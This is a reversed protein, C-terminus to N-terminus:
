GDTTEEEILGEDLAVYLKRDYITQINFNCRLVMPGVRSDNEELIERAFDVNDSCTIEFEKVRRTEEFNNM